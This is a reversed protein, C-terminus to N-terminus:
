ALLRTKIWWILVGTCALLLGGCIAAAWAGGTHPSLGLFLAVILMAAGGLATLLAGIAMVLVTIQYSKM